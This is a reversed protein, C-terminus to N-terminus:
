VYLDLGSGSSGTRAAARQAGSAGVGDLAVTRQGAGGRGQRGAEGQGGDGQQGRAGFSDVTVGALVLGQGDLAERLQPLASGLLERTGAQEARFAVQAERGNLAISVEVSRGDQTDLTLEANHTKQSLWYSMQADMRDDMGSAATDIGATAVPLPADATLTHRSGVGDAQWASGGPTRVEEGRGEARALRRGVGGETTLAQLAAGLSPDLEEGRMTPQGAQAQQVDRAASQAAQAASHQLAQLASTGPNAASAAAATAGGAAPAGSVAAGLGRARAARGREAETGVGTEGDARAGRATPATLTAAAPAPAADGVAGLAPMGTDAAPATPDTADATRGTGGAALAAALAAAAGQADAAVQPANLVHALWPATPLAAAPTAAVPADADAADTGAADATTDDGPEEAGAGPRRAKDAREGKDSKDARAPVRADPRTNQPPLAATSADGGGAEESPLDMSGLLAGFGAAAEGGQAGAGSAAPARSEAPRTTVEIGM